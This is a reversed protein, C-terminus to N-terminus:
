RQGISGIEPQARGDPLGITDTFVDEDHLVGNQPAYPDTNRTDSWIPHAETGKPIVLGSYDGNFGAQIGDPPPFTPSVVKFDYPTESDRGGALDYDGNCTATGSPGCTRTIVPKSVAFAPSRTSFFAAPVSLTTGWVRLEGVPPSRTTKPLASSRSSAANQKSRIGPAADVVASIVASGLAPSANLGRM